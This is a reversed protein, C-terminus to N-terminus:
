LRGIHRSTYLYEADNKRVNHSLAKNPERHLSGHKTLSAILHLWTCLVFDCAFNVFHLARDLFFHAFQRVIGIQFAFANAFLYGTLNSLFDAPDLFDKSFLNMNVCNSFGTM